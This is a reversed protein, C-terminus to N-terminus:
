SHSTFNAKTFGSWFFTFRLKSNPPGIEMKFDTIFQLRLAYPSIGSPFIMLTIQSSFTYNLYNIQM